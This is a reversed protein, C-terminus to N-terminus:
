RQKRPFRRETGSYELESMKNFDVVLEIPQGNVFITSDNILDVLGVEERNYEHLEKGNMSIYVSFKSEDKTEQVIYSEYYFNFLPEALIGYRTM